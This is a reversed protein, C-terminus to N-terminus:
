LLGVQVKKQMQLGQFGPDKIINAIEDESTMSSWRQMNKIKIHDLYVTM